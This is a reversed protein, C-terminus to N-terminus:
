DMSSLKIKEGIEVRMLDHGMAIRGAYQGSVERLIQEPSTAFLLVHNFITLRPQTQQLIQLMQPTQTHYALVRQLRPNRRLLQESAAAIEHILLDADQAQQILNESYTTDGSLVIKRQGFEIRYGFAPAVPKHDVAFAIVRIGKDEFVVGQNIDTAQLLALEKSQAKNSSRFHIDREYAQMLHQVFHETGKPGSVPLSAQRQWIRATLWLDDLGSIHDSHLHTLFVHDIQDASLGAQALRINVGHGADFLLRKDGVMVLTASGFREISPRPTGTGLLIVEAYDALGVQSIVLLILTTVSRLWWVTSSIIGFSPM